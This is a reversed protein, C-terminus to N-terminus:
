YLHHFQLQATEFGLLHHQSLTTSMIGAFRSFEATAVPRSFTLKWELRLSSCHWLIHSSGCLQVRWMHIPGLPQVVAFPKVINYTCKFPANTTHLSYIEIFINYFFLLAFTATLKMAVQCSWLILLDWPLYKDTPTVTLTELHSWCKLWYVQTFCVARGLHHAADLGSLAQISYFSPPLSSKGKTSCHSM